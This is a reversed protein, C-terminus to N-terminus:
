KDKKSDCFLLYGISSLLALMLAIANIAPIRDITAVINDIHQGILTVLM